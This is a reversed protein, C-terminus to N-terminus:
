PAGTNCMGGAGGAGGAGGTVSGTVSLAHIFIAATAAVNLSQIPGRPPLTIRQPCAALTAPPLGDEENGLVLAIPKGPAFTTFPKAQELATAVVRYLPALRRLVKPLDPVQILDLFEFGGEAVRYAAESPQAQGPHASLLLRTLGFFAASRAIAGLNHPNGIGDLILLPAGAKAWGPAEAEDLIRCPRPPAVAVIGGHMSTGAIRALEDGEVLRYTKRHAALLHCFPGTRTKMRDDFYLREM